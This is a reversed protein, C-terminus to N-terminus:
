GPTGSLGLTTQLRVKQWDRVGSISGGMVRETHMMVKLSAALIARVNLLILSIASSIMITSEPLVSEVVAMACDWPALTKTSAHFPNAACFFEHRALALQSQISDRSASSSALGSSAAEM